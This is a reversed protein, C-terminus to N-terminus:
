KPLVVKQFAVAGGSVKPELVQGSQRKCLAFFPLARDIEHAVVITRQHRQDLQLQEGYTKRQKTSHCSSYQNM